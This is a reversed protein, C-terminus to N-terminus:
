SIERLRTDNPQEETADIHDLHAKSKDGLTQLPESIWGCRCKIRQDETIGVLMHKFIHDYNLAYRERNCPRPRSGKGAEGQVM